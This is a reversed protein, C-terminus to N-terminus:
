SHDMLNDPAYRVLPPFAYWSWFAIMFGWWAFFFVRGYKNFPNLIPITRAKQNIPNIEPAKWLTAVNFGM